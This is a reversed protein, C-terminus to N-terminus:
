APRGLGVLAGYRASVRLSFSEAPQDSVAEQLLALVAAGSPTAAYSAASEAAAAPLACCTACPGSSQDGGFRAATLKPGLTRISTLLPSGVIRDRIAAWDDTAAHGVVLHAARRRAVQEQNCCAFVTGDWHVLPWTARDCPAPAPEVAPAELASRHAVLATARGVPNVLGVLVPVSDNFERRVADVLGALYDDDDSLGTLQFSIDVGSAILGHAAAFVDGRQVEREHFQDLSMAVHDVAMLARRVAPGPRRGERAWYMGTLLYSRTGVGRATVALDHVLAPRLLAEGGSLLIVEPRATVTFSDVIARFPLEPHEESTLASETSCHACSLPCRRTLALFLGACPRNRLSAMEHLHM